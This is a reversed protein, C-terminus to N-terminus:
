INVNLWPKAILAAIMSAIFWYVVWSDSGTAWSTREPYQIAISEVSSDPPFPAEWPHLMRDSWSWGPRMQSIRQFGDGIVLEKDFISDGVHFILSHQGPRKAQINWYVERESLVRVPGITTEFADAPELHVPPMEKSPECNLQISVLAEEGVALPRAQYWLAIQGLM